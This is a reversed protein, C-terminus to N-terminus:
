QQPEFVQSLKFTRTQGRETWKIEMSARLLNHPKRVFTLQWAYLGSSGSKPALEDARATVALEIEKRAISVAEDLRSARSAARMSVSFAGLVGLIGVALITMAVLVEILTFVRTNRRTAPM